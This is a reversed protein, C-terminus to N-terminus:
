KPQCFLTHEKMEMQYGLSKLFPEVGLLASKGTKIDQHIDISLYPSYKELTSKAGYLAYLEFGEIDIKIAKPQINNTTVFKDITTVEVLYSEHYRSINVDPANLTSIDSAWFLDQDPAYEIFEALELRDSIASKVLTVNNLHNLDIIQQLFQQTKRAPEFAYIHGKNGVVKTIPLTIVGFSAGVDLFVDGYDLQSCLWDACHTEVLFNLPNKEVPQLCHQYIKLTEIPALIPIRNIQCQIIARSQIHNLLEQILKHDFSKKIERLSGQLDYYSDQLQNTSHQVQEQLQNTSHQLNYILHNTDAISKNVFEEIELLGLIRKRLNKLWNKLRMM